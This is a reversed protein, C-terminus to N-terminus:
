KLKKWIKRKALYMVGAMVLLYFVVKIGMQKRDDSEPESAWSLFAVVDHAMQDVTAKTGDPYTVQGETHLPPPMSIKRGPFYPNYHHGEGLEFGDPADKYGTLLSYVYDAEGKRAKVVMSLDPPHAGNNAARAAKENPFPNPFKDVTTAKKQITEGNDDLGPVTYEAAIATAEAKTLGLNSERIEHISNGKGQLNGFRMQDLGHCMSCVNKYVIFGRQLEARDFTGTPGTFSFTEKKPTLADTTDAQAMQVSVTTLFLLSTILLTRM